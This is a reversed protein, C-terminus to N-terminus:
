AKKNKNKEWIGPKTYESEKLTLRKDGDVINTEFLHMKDNVCQIDGKADIVVHSNYM